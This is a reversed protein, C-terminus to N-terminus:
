TEAVIVEFIMERYNAGDEKKPVIVMDQIKLMYQMCGLQQLKKKKKERGRSIQIFEELEIMKKVTFMKQNGM